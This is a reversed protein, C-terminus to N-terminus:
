KKKTLEISLSIREEWDVFYIYNNLTLIKVTNLTSWQEYTDSKDIFNYISSAKNTDVKIFEQVEKDLKNKIAEYNTYCMIDSYEEFQEYFEPDSIYKNFILFLIKNVNYNDQYKTHKKILIKEFIFDQLTKM